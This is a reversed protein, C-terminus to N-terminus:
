GLAPDPGPEFPTAPQLPATIAHRLEDDGTRQAALVTGVGIATALAALGAAFPLMLQRKITTRM